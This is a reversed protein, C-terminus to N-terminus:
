FISQMFSFASITLLVNSSQEVFIFVLLFVVVHVNDSLVDLLGFHQQVKPNCCVPFLHAM